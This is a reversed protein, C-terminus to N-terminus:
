HAWTAPGRSSYGGPCLRQMHGGPVVDVEGHFLVEDDLQVGLLASLFSRLIQHAAGHSLANCATTFLLTNAYSQSQFAGSNFHASIGPLRCRHCIRPLAGPAPSQCWAPCRGAARAERRSQRAHGHRGDFDVAHDLMLKGGNGTHLFVDGLDDQVNFAQHCLEVAVAGFCHFDVRLPGHSTVASDMLLSLSTSIKFGSSCM